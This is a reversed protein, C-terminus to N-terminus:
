SITPIFNMDTTIRYFLNLLCDMCRRPKVIWEPRPTRPYFTTRWDLPYHTNSCCTIINQVIVFLWNGLLISMGPSLSGRVTLWSIWNAYLCSSLWKGYFPSPALHYSFDPFWCLLHLPGPNTSFLMVGGDRSAHLPGLNTSFIDCWSWSILTSPCTM